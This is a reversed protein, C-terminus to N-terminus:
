PAAAVSTRADNIMVSRVGGQLCRQPQDEAAAAMTTGALLSFITPWIHIKECKVACPREVAEGHILVETVSNAAIARDIFNSRDM